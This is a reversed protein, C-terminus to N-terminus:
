ILRKQHKYKRKKRPGAYEIPTEAPEDGRGSAAYWKLFDKNDLTYAGDNIMQDIEPSQPEFGMEEVLWDRLDSDEQKFASKMPMGTEGEYTSEASKYAYSKGGPTGMFQKVGTWDEQKFAPDKEDEGFEVADTSYESMKNYNKLASKQQFASSGSLGQEALNTPHNDLKQNIGPLTHGKMKFGKGKKGRSM